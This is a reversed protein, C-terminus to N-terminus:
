ANIRELDEASRRVGRAACIAECRACVYEDYLQAKQGRDRCCNGADFDVTGGSFRHKQRLIDEDFTGDPRPSSNRLAGSPCLEICKGCVSTGDGSTLDYPCYRDATVAPDTDTYDNIRRLRGLRDADLLATGDGNSAPEQGDFVVMSFYRGFLRRRSGDPWAEDRFSLRSVGFQLLGTLVAVSNQPWHNNAPGHYRGRLYDSRTRDIIKAVNKGTMPVVARDPGILSLAAKGMARDIIGGVEGTARAYYDFPDQDGREIKDAYTEFVEPNVALMASVIVARGYRGQADDFTEPMALPNPSGDHRTTRVNAAAYHMWVDALGLPYMGVHAPSRLGQWLDTDLSCNAIGVRVVPAGDADTMYSRFSNAWAYAPEHIVDNVKRQLLDQVEAVNLGIDSM